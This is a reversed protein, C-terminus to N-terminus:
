RPWAAFAVHLQEVQRADLGYLQTFVTDDLRDLRRMAEAFEADTVDPDAAGALEMLRQRSYRDLAAAVDIYDRPEARTALAAVKSGLVDDLHLVPGIDMTVPAHGRDFRVLQLRVLQGDRSIEYEAMEQELGYILDGLGEQAVPEVAFGAEALAAVVREAVAQVAGDVDTFVDVDETPRAIIGHAALANGGALAFGRDATAALVLRAVEAQFPDAAEMLGRGATTGSAAAAM